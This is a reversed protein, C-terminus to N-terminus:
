EWHGEGSHRRGMQDTGNICGEPGSMVQGSGFPTKERDGFGEEKDLWGHNTVLFPVEVEKNQERLCRKGKGVLRGDWPHVQM